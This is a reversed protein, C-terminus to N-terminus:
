ESEKIEKAGILMCKFAYFFSITDKYIQFKRILFQLCLFIYIKSNIMRFCAGKVKFYNSDFGKFWTSERDTIKAIKKPYSYIKLGKKYCEYLFISEEGMYYKSGAGFREDFKINAERIKSSKFSIQVSQIKMLHLYDVKGKKLLPKINNPNDSEVYFVIIDAEPYEKYANLVINEYDNEYILDDDALICINKTCNELLRNRSKSLGNEKFTLLKINNLQDYYNLNDKWNQNIVLADKHINMNKMLEQFQSLGNINMTSVLIEINM